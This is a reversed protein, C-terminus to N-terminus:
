SDSLVLMGGFGVAFTPYLPDIARDGTEDMEFVRASVKRGSRDIFPAGEAFDSSLRVTLKRSFLFCFIKNWPDSPNTSYILEPTSSLEVRPLDSPARQAFVMVNVLLGATIIAVGFSCKRM